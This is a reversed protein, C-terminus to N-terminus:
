SVGPRPDSPLAPGSSSMLSATLMSWKAVRRSARLALSGSGKSAASRASCAPASPITQWRRLSRRWMLSRSRRRRRSATLVCSLMSIAAVASMSLTARFTRGSTEESTGSRGSSSVVSPPSSTVAFRATRPGNTFFSWRAPYPDADEDAGVEILDAGRGREPDVEDLDVGAKVGVELGATGLILRERGDLVGGLKCFLEPELDVGAVAEIVPVDEGDQGDRLDDLEADSEGDDGPGRDDPDFPGDPLHFREELVFLTMMSM